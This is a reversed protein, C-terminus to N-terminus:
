TLGSLQEADWDRLFKIAKEFYADNMWAIGFDERNGTHLGMLWLHRMAVFYPIAQIDMEHVNRVERYGRLFASWQEEEKGRLRASWRFVAIDYARWGMGCCDFDFLTLINNEQVRVNGWHLDGHCFGEELSSLPLSRGWQRLREAFAQIYAWDEARHLLMPEIWRLPDDILHELDLGTRQHPSRFEETVAHIQAAIKGYAYAADTDESEYAVERGLAYSFLVLFRVGEPAHITGILQGDKRQIPVSVAIGAKQLFLLVDLEYQIESLSRWGKRYIRLVYTTTKTKLLYTDNVGMLFFQCDIPDVFDYDSAVAEGLAISSLISHTAPFSENM